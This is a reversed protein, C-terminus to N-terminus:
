KIGAKAASAPDIKRLTEAIARRAAPESEQYIELVRASLSQAAKGMEGALQLAQGQESASGELAAAFIKLAEKSEGTVQWLALAAIVRNSPEEDKFLVLLADAARKAAPGVKGIAEAAAGRVFGEKDKLGLILLGVADKAAPGMAGLAQCAAQRNFAEDDGFAGVLVGVHDNKGDIRWLALAAHIRVSITEDKLLKKLDACCEKADSGIRGLTKAALGRVSAEKDQLATQLESVAPAPPTAQASLAYAALRRVRPQKSSLAKALVPVAEPGLNALSAGTMPELLFFDKEETLQLLPTAAEKAVPGLEGLALIVEMKVDLSKDKLADILAPVASKAKKGLLAIVAPARTRTTQDKDRLAQQLVPLLFTAPPPDIRWLAECAKVRIAGSLDKYAMEKLDAVAFKAIPGLKALLAVANYRVQPDASKLAKLGDPPEIDKKKPDDQASCRSTLLVALLAAAPLSVRVLM